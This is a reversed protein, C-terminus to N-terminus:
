CTHVGFEVGNARRSDYVQTSEVLMWGRWTEQSSLFLTLVKSM